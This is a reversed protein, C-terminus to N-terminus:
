EPRRVPTSPQPHKYLASVSIIGKPANPTPVPTAPNAKPTAASGTSPTNTHAAIPKWRDRPSYLSVFTYLYVQESTAIPKLTRKRKETHTTHSNRPQGPSELPSRLQRRPDSHRTSHPLSQSQM